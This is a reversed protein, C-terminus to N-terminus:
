RPANPSPTRALCIGLQVEIPGSGALEGPRGLQGLHGGQLPLQRAKPGLDGGGQVIVVAVPIALMVIQQQGQGASAPGALM